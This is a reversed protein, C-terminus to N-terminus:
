ENERGKSQYPAEPPAKKGAATQDKLWARWREVAKAREEPADYHRYGLTEGTLKELSMIAYLRVSADSDTLRDILYAIAKRDKTQAAEVIAGARVGPADDQLRAYLSPQGTECGGCCLGALVFTLTKVSRPAV